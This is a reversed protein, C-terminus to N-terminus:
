STIINTSGPTHIPRELLINKRKVLLENERLIGFLRDRGIKFHQKQFDNYLSKMLKRTGERPLTKQSKRVLEVVTQEVQQKALYRKSYKYYADRKLSFADCMVDISFMSDDRNKPAVKM